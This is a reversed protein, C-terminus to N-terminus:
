HARVACGRGGFKNKDVMNFRPLNLHEFVLYSRFRHMNDDVGFLAGHV